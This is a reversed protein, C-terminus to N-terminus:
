KVTITGQMWPHIVCFYHLESGKKASVKFSVKAKPGFYVSDGPASKTGMTDFGPRGAEVLPKKVEGTQPDAEHAGMLPGCVACEMVQKATKPMAGHTVLSLTHPAGDSSKNVVKVTAGSKVTLDGPTFRQTDQIYRNLKVVPGGEAKITDTTAAGAQAALAFVGLAAVAATRRIM